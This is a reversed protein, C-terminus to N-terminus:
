GHEFFWNEIKPRAFALLFDELAKHDTSVLSSGLTLLKRLKLITGIPRVPLSPLESSHSKDPDIRFAYISINSIIHESRHRIIPDYENM